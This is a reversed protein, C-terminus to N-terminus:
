SEVESKKHGEALDKTFLIPIFGDSRKALTEALWPHRDTELSSYSAFNAFGQGAYPSERFADLIQQWAKGAVKMVMLRELDPVDLFVLSDIFEESFGEARMLDGHWRLLVADQPQYRLTLLIPVIRTERSVGELPLKGDRIATCARELQVLKGPANKKGEGFWLARLEKEILDPDGSVVVHPPLFQATLEIVFLVGDELLVADPTSIGAKHPVTGDWDSWLRTTTPSLAAPRLLEAVYWELSRGLATKLQHAEKAREDRLLQLLLRWFPAESLTAALYGMDLPIFVGEQIELLPQNYLTFLHLHSAPHKEAYSRAALSHETCSAGIYSFIRPLSRQAEPNFFRTFYGPGVCWDLWKQPPRDKMAEYKAYIAFVLAVLHEYPFSFVEEFTACFDFAEAPYRKQVARMGDNFLLWSRAIADGLNDYHSYFLTRLVSAALWRNTEVGIHGTVRDSLGDEVTANLDLLMKGVAGEHGEVIHGADPIGGDTLVLKIALPMLLRHIVRDAKGTQLWLKTKTLEPEPVYQRLVEREVPSNRRLYDDRLAINICALTFALGRPEFAKIASSVQALQVRPGPWLDETSLYVGINRQSSRHPRELLTVCCRKIKRGSGCPCRDNVGVRRGDLWRLSM